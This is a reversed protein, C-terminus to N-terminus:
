GVLYTEYLLNVSTRGAVTVFVSRNLWELTPAATEIFTSAHALREVADLDESRGVANSRVYLLAGDDTQLTYRVDARVTGDPSVMQWSASGGPLLNGNLEPGSVTGAMLPVVLRHGALVNGFDLPRGPVAKLRYVQTLVPDPLENIV